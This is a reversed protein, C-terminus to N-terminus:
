WTAAEAVEDKEVPLGAKQYAAFGGVLNELKKFGMRQLVTYAIASRTGGQCQVLLLEDKNLPQAGELMGLPVNKAGPIHGSRYEAGGRVDVVTAGGRRVRELESATVNVIKQLPGKLELWVDLVDPAFWGAVFNMGILALAAAAEAAQEASEAVLYIATGFPVVSGAWNVFGKGFPVAISGPLFGQEVRATARVDLLVHKGPLEVIKPSDVLAPSALGRDEATGLRNLRKMEAFYKPPEPQDELVRRVFEAESKVGFAWNALREYGLSTVPMGGLKKGCPSGAGHGPWLLLHPPLNAFEQLSRFLQRASAEMTGSVGAARELLDPRGVDGAFIFDGTFAGVAENSTAEDVLLFTLHEPTHGPTHRVDLRVRGARITDGHRVPKVGAEQAFAYQWDEGGEASVYLTAGTRKTLERAASLFDAHIHTETVSTIRLGQALASEVYQEINRNPDIVIAEGAASCGVLFSAQAIKEEYFRNLIM